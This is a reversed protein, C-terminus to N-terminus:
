RPLHLGHGAGKPGRRSINVRRAKLVRYAQRGGEQGKIRENKYEKCQEQSPVSYTLTARFNLNLDGCGWHSLLRLCPRQSLILDCPYLRTFPFLAKIFPGLWKTREVKHAINLLCGEAALFITM